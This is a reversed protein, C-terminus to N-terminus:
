QLLPLSVMRTLWFSAGFNVKLNLVQELSWSQVKRPVKAAAAVCALHWVPVAVLESFGASFAMGWSFSTQDALFCFVMEPNLRAVGTQSAAFIRIGGAIQTAPSTRNETGYPSNVM